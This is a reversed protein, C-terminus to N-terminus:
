HRDEEPVYLLGAYVGGLERLGEAVLGAFRFAGAYRLHTNDGSGEPYNPYLGAPFNMYLEKSGEDGLEEVLKRSKATLDILPIGEEAALARMVGPYAGHSETLVGGEFRRRTLPTILVPLAGAARAVDAYRLLNRRYDEPAAYRAPDESKPDNHGFQIFLFDGPKLAKGVPEFWGEDWFSKTSRGNEAHNCVRVGPRLYVELEQGMGCQPWTDVHNFHVTSDGIWYIRAEMTM